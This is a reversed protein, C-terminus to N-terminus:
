YPIFPNGRGAEGEFPAIKEFPKLEKLIDSKLMDFNIKIEQPKQPLIHPAPPERNFFRSWVVFVTGFIAIVLILILYRQKKKEQFPTVLVM